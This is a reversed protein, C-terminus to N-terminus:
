STEQPSPPPPLVPFRGDAFTLSKPVWGTPEFTLQRGCRPRTIPKSRGPDERSLQPTSGPTSDAWLPVRRCDAYRAISLAQSLILSGVQWRCLCPILWMVRSKHGM